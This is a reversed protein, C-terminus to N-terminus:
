FIKELSYVRKFGLAPIRVEIRDGRAVLFGKGLGRFSAKLRGFLGEGFRYYLTGDVRELEERGLCSGSLGKVEVLVKRLPSWRLEFSGRGCSGRLTRGSIVIEELFFEQGNVVLTTEILRSEFLGEKVSKPFVRLPTRSELVHVLLIARPVLAYTIALSFFALFLIGLIRKM